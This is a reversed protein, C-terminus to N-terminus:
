VKDISRTVGNQTKSILDGALQKHLKVRPRDRKLRRVMGYASIDSDRM